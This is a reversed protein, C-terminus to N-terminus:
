SGVNEELVIDINKDIVFTGALRFRVTNEPIQSIDESTLVEMESVKLRPFYIPLQAHANNLVNDKLVEEPLFLSRRADLGFNLDMMYEGRNTHAWFKLSDLYADKLSYNMKFMGTRTSIQWPLKINIPDASSSLFGYTLRPIRSAM